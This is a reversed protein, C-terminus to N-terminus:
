NRKLVDEATRNPSYSRADNVRNMIESKPDHRSLIDLLRKYESHQTQAHLNRKCRNIATMSGLEKYIENEIDNMEVTSLDLVNVEM